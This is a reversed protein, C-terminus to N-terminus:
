GCGYCPGSPSSPGRNLSKGLYLPHFPGRFFGETCFSGIVFISRPSPQAWHGGLSKHGFIRRVSHALARRSVQTWFDPTPQPAPPQPPPHHQRHHTSAPARPARSHPPPRPGPLLSAFDTWSAHPMSALTGCVFSQCKCCPAPANSWLRAWVASHAHATTAGCPAPFAHVGANAM